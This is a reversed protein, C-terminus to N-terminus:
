PLRWLVGTAGFIVAAGTADGIPDDFSTDPLDKFNIGSERIM